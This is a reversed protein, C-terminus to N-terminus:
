HYDLFGDLVDAYFDYDYTVDLSVRLKGRPCAPTRWAMM